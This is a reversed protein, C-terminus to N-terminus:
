YVEAHISLSFQICVHQTPLHVKCQWDVFKACDPTWKGGILLLGLESQAESIGNNAVCRYETGNNVAVMATFELMSLVSGDDQTQTTINFDGGDTISGGEGDEWTISPPPISSAVCSFQATENDAVRVEAPHELFGPTSVTTFKESAETGNGVRNEATVTVTYDTALMLSTVTFTRNDFESMGPQFRTVEEFLPLQPAVVTVTYATLNFHSFPEQWSVTAQTTLINSIAVPAVSTPVGPSPPFFLHLDYVAM